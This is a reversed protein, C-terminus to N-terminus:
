EKQGTTITTLLFPPFLLKDRNLGPMHMMKAKYAKGQSSPLIIIHLLTSLHHLPSLLLPHIQFVGM